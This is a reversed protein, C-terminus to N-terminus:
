ISLEAPGQGLKLRALDLSLPEKHSALRELQRDFLLISTEGQRVYGEIRRLGSGEDAVTVVFDVAAKSLTSSTPSVSILPPALEIGLGSIRLFSGALIVGIVGTLFLKLILRSSLIRSGVPSIKGFPGDAPEKMTNM